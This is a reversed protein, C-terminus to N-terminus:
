PAIGEDWEYEAMAEVWRQYEGSEGQATYTYTVGESTATKEVLPCGTLARVMQDIVWMKHHDGDTTGYTEAYELARGIRLGDEAVAQESTIHEPV